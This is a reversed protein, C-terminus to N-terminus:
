RRASEARLAVWREAAESKAAQLLERVADIEAPSHAFADTPSLIFALVDRASSPDPTLSSTYLVEDIAADDFRSM